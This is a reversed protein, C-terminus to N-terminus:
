THSRCPSFYPMPLSPIKAAAGCFVKPGQFAHVRARIRTCPAFLTGTLTVGTRIHAGFNRFASFDTGLFACEKLTGDGEATLAVPTMTRLRLVVAAGGRARGIGHAWM